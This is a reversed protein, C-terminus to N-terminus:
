KRCVLTNWLSDEEAKKLAVSLRKGASVKVKCEAPVIKHELDDIALVHTATEGPITVMLRQEKFEAQVLPQEATGAAKVVAPEGEATIYIKVFRRSEDVWSYNTIDKRPLTSAPPAEAAEMGLRMPEGGTQVRIDAPVEKQNAAWTYYASEAGKSAPKDWNAVQCIITAGSHVGQYKLSQEASLLEPKLSHAGDKNQFFLVLDTGPKRLLGAIHSRLTYVESFAGIPALDQSGSSSVVLLDLQTVVPDKAVPVGTPNALLLPLPPDGAM